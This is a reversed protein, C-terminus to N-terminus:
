RTFDPRPIKSLFHAEDIRLCDICLKILSDLSIIETREFSKVAGLSVGSKNAVDLQTLNLSIRYAKFRRALESKTEISTSFNNIKMSFLCNM